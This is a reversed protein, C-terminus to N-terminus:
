AANILRVSNALLALILIIVFQYKKFLGQNYCYTILISLPIITIYMVRYTYTSRSGSVVFFAATAMILAFTIRFIGAIPKPLKKHRYFSKTILLFPYFIAFYKVFTSMRFVGQEQNNLEEMKDVLEENGFIDEMLALNSNILTIVGIIVALLILSNYKFNKKEFPLLLCPLVAVGIIMEHHFFYSSIALVIGFTKNWQKKGWLHIGIGCFYVAMALSARAYCFTGSFLVFLLLVVLEPKLLGRYMKATLLVILLGGGWVILRFVEFPYDFPLLRCSMIIFAYVQEKHFDMLHPFNMWDRYRFYDPNVCYFVAYAAFYLIFLQSVEVNRKSRPTAVLTKWVAYVFVVMYLGWFLAKISLPINYEDFSYFDKM